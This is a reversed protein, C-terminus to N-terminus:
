AGIAAWIADVIDGITDSEEFDNRSIGPVECGHHEMELMVPLWYLRRALPDVGLDRQWQWEEVINPLGRKKRVVGLVVISVEVRSTLMCAM